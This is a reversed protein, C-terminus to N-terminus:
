EEFSVALREMEAWAGIAKRLEDASEVSKSIELLRAYQEASLSPKFAMYVAGNRTLLNLTTQM